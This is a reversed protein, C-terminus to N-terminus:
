GGSVPPIIALEDGDKLVTSRDVYSQNVAFAVRTLLGAIAPIQKGLTTSADAVSAGESLELSLESAGARDRLLAFLRVTIKV